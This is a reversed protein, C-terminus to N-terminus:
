GAFDLDLRREGDPTMAHVELGYRWLAPLQRRAMAEDMFVFRVHEVPEPFIQHICTGAAIGMEAASVEREQVLVVSTRTAAEYFTPQYDGAQSRFAWAEGAYHGGDWMPALLQHGPRAQALAADGTADLDHFQLLTLNAAEDRRRQWPGQQLVRPSVLRHGDGKLAFAWGHISVYGPWWAPDIRTTTCAEFPLQRLLALTRDISIDSPTRDIMLRHRRRNSFVRVEDGWGVALDDSREVLEPLSAPAPVDAGGVQISDPPSGPLFGAALAAEVLQRADAGAFALQFRGRTM